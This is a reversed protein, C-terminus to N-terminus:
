GGDDVVRQDPNRDLLWRRVGAKFTGLRSEMRLEVPLRNWVRASEFKFSNEVIQLRPGDLEILCDTVLTMGERMSQPANWNVIKWLHLLASQNKLQDIDLWNVESMLTTQRTRRGLGTVFRAALNLATQAMRRYVESTHGWLCIGYLFKSVVLANVLQLRAKISLAGRLKSLMGIVKRVGPILPKKQGILHAEWSLNNNLILGLMKLQPKDTVHKDIFKISGNKEVKESATLDPPIGGLRSRKQCVMFETLHTKSENLELGLGNLFDRIRGFTKEIKIQNGFRSKGTVIYLGDDAYAPLIGCSDCDNGFLRVDDRHADDECEDDEVVATFDNVYCLYLLPGLVSGQPVGFPSSHISSTASGIAVYSSRNTLYSGIWECAHSDVGYLELKELLTSHRVCDFAASQDVSLTASIENLDAGRYIRNVIEILATTTSHRDRYAHHHGSILGYDEMYRLLQRQVIREAIKSCVPLLAVPRFSSPSLKDADQSKILPIVRGLKWKMPFKRTALSLNIIHTIIHGINPAVLKIVYSDLEDRGYAHSVKM